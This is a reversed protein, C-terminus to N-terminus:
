VLVAMLWLLVRAGPWVIYTCRMRRGGTGWRREERMMMRMRTRMKGRRFEAWFLVVVVALWRRWTRTLM